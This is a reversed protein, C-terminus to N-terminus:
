RDDSSSYYVRVCLRLKDNCSGGGIGHYLVFIAAQWKKNAADRTQFPRRAVTWAAGLM